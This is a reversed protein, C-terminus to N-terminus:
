SAVIPRRRYNLHGNNNESAIMAISQQPVVTNQRKRCRSTACRIFKTVAKRYDSVCIIPVLPNLVPLWHSPIVICMQLNLSGFNFFSIAAIILIGIINLSLPLLAQICLNLTIQKNIQQRRTSNKDLNKDVFRAM